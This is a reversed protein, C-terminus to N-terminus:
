VFLLEQEINSVAFILKIDFFGFFIDLIVRCGFSDILKIERFPRFLNLCSLFSLKIKLILCVSCKLVICM